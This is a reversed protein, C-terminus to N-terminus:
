RSQSNGLEEEAARTCQVDAQQAPCTNISVEKFAVPPERTGEPPPFTEINHERIWPGGKAQRGGGNNPNMSKITDVMEQIDDETGSLAPAITSATTRSKKTTKEIRAGADGKAGLIRGKRRMACDAVEMANSKVGGLMCDGAGELNGMSASGSGGTAVTFVQGAGGSMETDGATSTPSKGESRCGSTRNIGTDNGSVNDARLINVLVTSIRVANSIPTKSLM